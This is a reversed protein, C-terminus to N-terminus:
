ESKERSKRWKRKKNAEDFYGYGYTYGYYGYGAKKASIDNLILNVRPMKEESIINNILALQHKFTRGARVLYLTIDAYRALLRADTVINPTTDIIIFDFDKRLQAFLKATQERLILEAPNPPIPGCPLIFLNEHDKIPYVIDDLGAQGIVYHSFGKKVAIGLRQALKPKRLDLELIITKKGSLALTAALNLSVFTKGEGPMSSTFLIVKEDGGPLLFNLDTRLIRFQESLPDRSTARVIIGPGAKVKNHLIEALIPAKTKKEIEERNRVKADTLERIYSYSFPLLIGLLFAASLVLAKKPSIPKTEARGRDIVRINSITSSRSIATEEKKQLLFLYLQQKINQQRSYELFTREQAPAQHILNDVSSTNKKMAEIGAQLSQRITQLGTFMDKRLVQLQADITQIIPNGATVGSTLIRERQLLLSNYKDISASVSPDQPALSAPVIHPNAANEQMYDLMSNVVSLQVEQEALGQEYSGANNIVAKAQESIDIINNQQKFSQIKGEIADLEGSVNGLREDIFRITSDAVGNNDDVNAKQYSSILTDLIDIGQQKLSTPLSLDIVSTQKDPIDISLNKQLYDVKAGKTVVDLRIEQQKDWFATLSDPFLTIQGFPLTVPKKWAGRWLSDDSGITFGAATLTIYYRLKPSGWGSETYNTITATFPLTSKYLPVRRLQQRASFTFNLRLDNVVKEILTYSGVIQLENDVNSTGSLLGLDQLATLGSNQGAGTGGGKSDDDKVLISAKTNYVPNVIKFYVVALFVMIFVSLLYIYWRSRIEHTIKAIIEDASNDEQMEPVNSLMNM